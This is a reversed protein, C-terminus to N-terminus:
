MFRFMVIDLANEDDYDGSKIGMEAEHLLKMLYVLTSNNYVNAKQKAFRIQMPSLGTAKEINNGSYSQVQLVQKANNYLLSLMPLTASGFRKCEEYLEWAEQVKNTLVANVWDFVVDEAPSYITGDLVLQKLAENDSIDNCDAYRAIKDAELLLRAYDSECIDILCEANRDTLEIKKALYKKLLDKSLPKFECIAGKFHKFFSARNDAKTYCLILVNDGIMDIVTRWSREAKIFDMDDRVVYCASKKLISNSGLLRCADVVTEPRVIKAQKCEAIRKIYIKQVEIETGTFIYFKRIKKQILETHLSNIDMRAEIRFGM